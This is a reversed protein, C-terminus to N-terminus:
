LCADGDYPSPDWADTSELAAALGPDSARYYFLWSPLKRRLPVLAALAKRKAGSLGVVEVVHIGQEAARRLASVLLARVSAPSGDLVQIDAVRYRTLGIAPHDQRVMVLYGALEVGDSLALIELGLCDRARKFHWSLIPASRVALLRNPARRLKMWLRDFREDFADLPLVADSEVQAGRWGTGRRMAEILLGAPYSLVNSLPARLQRLASAAFGRSNAVWYLAQDYEPHPVRRFRLASLIEGVRESATNTLLVDVGPQATWRRLMGLAHRRFDPDVAWAFGTLVRLPKGNWEYGLQLNSFTGVVGVGPEELMWGRPIGPDRFPNGDWLHAWAEPQSVAVGNRQLVEAAAASDDPQMERIRPTAM